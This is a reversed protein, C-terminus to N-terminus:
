AYGDDGRRGLKQKGQVVDVRRVSVQVRGVSELVHLFPVRRADVVVGSVVDAADVFVYMEFRAADEGVGGRSRGGRM